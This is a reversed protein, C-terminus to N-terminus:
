PLRTRPKVYSKAGERLRGRRPYADGGEKPISAVFQQAEQYSNAMHQREEPSGQTIMGLTWELTKFMAEAEKEDDDKM